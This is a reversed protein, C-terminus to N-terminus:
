ASRIWHLLYCDMTQVPSQELTKGNLKLKHGKYKSVSKIEHLLIMQPRYHFLLNREADQGM